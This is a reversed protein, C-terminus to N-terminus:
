IDSIWRDKIQQFTGDEKLTLVSINVERLLESDSLIFGYSESYGGYEHFVFKTDPNEHIYYKLPPGDFVLADLTGNELSRLADQFTKEARLKAGRSRAFEAGTSGAVALVHKENLAFENDEHAIATALFATLTPTILLTLVMWCSIFIRGFTTKPSKDGYGVTTLTVISLWMGGFIGRWGSDFQSNKKRELGWIVVGVALLLSVFWFLGTFFNGHLFPAFMKKLTPEKESLSGMSAEYYPQSFSIKKAREATITIPGIIGDLEGSEIKEIAENVTEVHVLNYSCAHRKSVDKCVSDWMDIALGQEGEVVFPAAGAIGIQLPEPNALAVILSLTQIFM